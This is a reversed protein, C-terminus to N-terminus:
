NRESITIVEETHDAFREPEAVLRSVPYRVTVAHPIGFLQDTYADTMHLLEQKLECGTFQKSTRRIITEGREAWQKETDTTRCSIV